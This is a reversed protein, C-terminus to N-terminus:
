AEEMPTCYPSFQATLEGHSSDGTHCHDQERDSHAAGGRGARLDVRACAGGRRWVLQRGEAATLGGVPYPRAEAGSGNAAHPHQAYTRAMDKLAQERRSRYGEADIVLRTREGTRKQLVLGVLYQLANITSGHKGIVVGMDHGEVLLRVSGDPQRQAGVTAEVGMAQM